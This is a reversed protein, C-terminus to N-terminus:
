RIVCKASTTRGEADVAKVLYIGPLLDVAVSEEGRLSRREVIRGSLDTVMISRADIGMLRLAHSARDYSIANAFAVEGIGSNKGGVAMFLKAAEPVVIPNPTSDVNYPGSNNAKLSHWSTPSVWDEGYGTFFVLWDGQVDFNDKAVTVVLNSSPDVQYPQDLDVILYHTGESFSVRGSFVKKKAQIWSNGSQQFTTKDTQGLAVQINTGLVEAPTGDENPEVTYEWGLRHIFLEGENVPLALENYPYITQVLSYPFYHAMPITSSLGPKVGAVTHNVPLTGPALMEVETPESNDNSVNQDGALVVRATVAVPGTLEVNPVITFNHIASKRTNLTKVDSTEGLVINGNAVIQIKYASQQASGNNHVNVSVEAPSQSVLELPCSFDEVAMDNEFEEEISFGYVRFTDITAGTKVNLAVYSPEDSQATYYTTFSDVSDYRIDSTTYEQTAYVSLANMDTGGKFNFEYNQNLDHFHTHFVVKYTKGAELRLPPSILDDDNGQESLLHRWCRGVDPWTFDNYEFTRADSNRDAPTWRNADTKNEFDTAYPVPVYTGALVEPSVAPTGEGDATVPTIIYTYREVTQLNEDKYNTKTLGTAVQVNDPMRTVNYTLSTQDFWGDHAGAAPQKWTVTVNKGGNLAVSKLQTVEGPVDRGSFANIYDQVGLGKDNTPIVYYTHMGAPANADTFTCAEGIGGQTIAIPSMTNDRYIEIDGLQTLPQRNWQTTPNTWSLTVQNSGDESPTFTLDSVRAPAERHDATQFPIYLGNIIDSWGVNGIKQVDGNDPNLRFLYQRADLSTGGWWLDGTSYDFDMTHIYYPKFDGGDPKIRWKQGFTWDPNFKVLYTETPLDSVETNYGWTIGYANGDYDFAICFVYEPTTALKTFVGTEVDVEGIMSTVAGGQGLNEPDYTVGYFKGNNYNYAYDYSGEWKFTADDKYNKVVEYTGTEADVKIWGYVYTGITYARALMGYYGQPTNAGAQLIYLLNDTPNDLSWLYGMKNLKSPVNSMLNVFAREHQYDVNTAAFMYTGQQKIDNIVRAPQQDPCEMPVRAPATRVSRQALATGSALVMAALLPYTLKFNM